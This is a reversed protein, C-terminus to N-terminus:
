LYLWKGDIKRFKSKEHLFNKKKAERYHAKFEVYGEIDNELGAETSIIELFLWELSKNFDLFKPRSDKHWTKLLYSRLKFVYASYRSRM